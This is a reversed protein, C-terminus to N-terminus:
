KKIKPSIKPKYPHKEMGKEYKKVKTEPFRGTKPDREGFDLDNGKKNMEYIWHGKPYGDEDFEEEEEEEEEPEPPGDKPVEEKPTVNVPKDDKLRLNLVGDTSGSHKPVSKEYTLDLTYHRIYKGRTGGLLSILGGGSFNKNNIPNARRKASKEKSKDESLKIKGEKGAKGSGNGGPAIDYNQLGLFVRAKTYIKKIARKIWNGGPKPEGELGNPDAFYVPNNNYAAYPSQWPYIVPDVNWRRGLRPDYQWYEATYSNGNGSVEDDKEQGNFAYRYNGSQGRGPMPMGFAYYDTTSKIDALYYAVTTTNLSVALKRDSVVSLVNGLHNSLEYNKRGMLRSSYNGKDLDTVLENVSLLGLRSSGFINFESLYLSPNGENKEYTTLINGQADRIYYTTTWSHSATGAPKV